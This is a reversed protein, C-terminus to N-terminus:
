SPDQAAAAAAAAKQRDVMHSVKGHLDKARALEAADGGANVDLVAQFQALADELRRRMGLAAGLANRAVPCSPDAAVARENYELEGDLDGAEGRVVAANVLARTHQPDALLTKELWRSEHALNGAEAALLSVMYAADADTPDLAAATEFLTAARAAQGLARRCQAHNFYADADRPNLEHVAEFCLSAGEIDGAQRRAFGLNAHTIASRPATRVAHGLADISLGQVNAGAANGDRGAFNADANAAGLAAIGREVSRRGHEVEDTTMIFGGVIYREGRAVPRGQHRVCGPRFTAEGCDMEVLRDEAEFWTGGGDYEDASNLSITFSLLGSDVHVDTAARTEADYKFLYASQVRLKSTDAAVGPFLEALAPYLRTRLAGDFWERVGDIDKVWEGHVKYRGAEIGTWGGSKAAYADAMAVVNACEEKTFIPTATVHVTPPVRDSCDPATWGDVTFSEFAPLEGELAAPGHWAEGEVKKCEAAHEKENLAELEVARANDLEVSRFSAEWASSPERVGGGRLRAAVPTVRRRRPATAAAFIVFCARLLPRSLMM